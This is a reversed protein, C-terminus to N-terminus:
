AALKVPYPFVKRDRFFRFIFDESPPMVDHPFGMEWLRKVDESFNIRFLYLLNCESMVQVNITKPRQVALLSAINKERGARVVKQVIDSYRANGTSGFFDMCEDIYVLGVKKADQTQYFKNIVATQWAVHQSPSLDLRQSVVMGNQTSSDFAIDFNSLDDLLCADV